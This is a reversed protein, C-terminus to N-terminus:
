AWPMGTTAARVSRDRGNAAQEAAQCRESLRGAPTPHPRYSYPAEETCTRIDLSVRGSECYDRGRVRPPPPCTRDLPVPAHPSSRGCPKSRKGSISTQPAWARRRRATPVHYSHVFACLRPKQSTSTADRGSLAASISPPTPRVARSGTVSLRWAASILGPDDRSLVASQGRKSPEFEECVRADAKTIIM